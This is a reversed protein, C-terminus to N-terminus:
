VRDQLLFQQMDLCNLKPLVSFHLTKSFWTHPQTQAACANEVTRALNSRLRTLNPNGCVFVTCQFASASKVKRSLLM